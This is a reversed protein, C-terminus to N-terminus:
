ASYPYDDHGYSSRENSNTTDHNGQAFSLVSPDKTMYGLEKSGLRIAPDPESSPERRPRSTYVSSNPMTVMLGAEVWFTDATQGFGPM